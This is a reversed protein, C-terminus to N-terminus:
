WMMVAVRGSEGAYYVRVRLVYRRGKFLKVQIQSSREAGGDDDGARYRLDGSVDEFLVMVSDARGFTQITYDRTADVVLEFDGQETPKSSLPQAQFAVLRAIQDKLSPYFKQAWTVDRKSLGGAPQLGNRYKEPELILGAEFPYHMISDPDWSSGQVLDPSIKRIINYFTKERPWFNPSGGLSLYVAEEDWVLGSNPNQHEHPFGLTHGIEHVATDLEGPRTLDWGFNMTRENAGHVLDIIDRGVYSWAGDGREFGIRIEAEERDQVEQFGVGIGLSKWVGLGRCVVERQAESGVWSRWETAGNTLPVQRGDTERDFFYYRLTTGNVWKSASVRILSARDPAVEPGLVREPAPPLECRQGAGSRDRESAVGGHREGELREIRDTLDEIRIDLDRPNAM